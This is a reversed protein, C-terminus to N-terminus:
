LFNEFCSFFFTAFKGSSLIVIKTTGGHKFHAVLFGRYSPRRLGEIAVPM